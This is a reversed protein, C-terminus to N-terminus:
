MHVLTLSLLDNHASNLHTSGEKTEGSAETSAGPSLTGGAGFMQTDPSINGALVQQTLREALTPVKSPSCKSQALSSNSTHHLCCISM